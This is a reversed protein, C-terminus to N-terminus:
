NWPVQTNPALITFTNIEINENDCDSPFTFFASVDPTFHTASSKGGVMIQWDGSAIQSGAPKSLNGLKGGTSPLKSSTAASQSAWLCGTPPQNMRGGVLMLFLSFNLPFKEMQHRPHYSFFSRMWCSKSYKLQKAQLLRQSHNLAVKLMTTKIIVIINM